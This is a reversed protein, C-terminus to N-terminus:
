GGSPPENVVGGTSNPTYIILVPTLVQLSVRIDSQKKMKKATM